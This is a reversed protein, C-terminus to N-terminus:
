YWGYPTYSNVMAVLHHRHHFVDGFPPSPSHRGWISDITTLRELHHWHRVAEGFPPLPPKL